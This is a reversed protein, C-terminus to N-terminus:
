KLVIEELKKAYFIAKDLRNIVTLDHLILNSKAVDEMSIIFNLGLNDDYKRINKQIHGCLYGICLPSKTSELTCGLSSSHYDCNPKTPIHNKNNAEQVQKKLLEDCSGVIYHNVNCCGVLNEEPCSSVCYDKTLKSLISDLEKVKNCYVDVLDKKLRDPLIDWKSM